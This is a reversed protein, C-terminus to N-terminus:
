APDELRQGLAVAPTRQASAEGHQCAEKRGQAVCRAFSILNLRPVLLDGVEGISM